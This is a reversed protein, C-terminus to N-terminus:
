KIRGTFDCLVVIGESWSDLRNKEQDPSIPHRVINGIGLAQRVGPIRMLLAFSISVSTSTLWYM